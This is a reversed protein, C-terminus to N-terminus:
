PKSASADSVFTYIGKGSGSVTTFYVEGQEDEGFSVVPLQESRIPHNGVVKKAKADYDLAWLKGSVYDAYVYKGQLEPVKSGRYVFGGTISKGIDHNYEFVPDILGQKTAGSNNGFPHLGERISWGYNGGKEIINIEEWLNQGVDAAWLKGTTKDFGMRWVNRLGYAYIEPKAGPTKVFPNDAPVAYAKGGEKKDVDIRLIKGLITELNQGNKHPDGGSGGDGLAIYLFGDPGFAITGGNHNWYPQPIRLLEEETSLDVTQPKSGSAKFRSVVSTHPADKTTYYVFLEGNERFNPHFAMGLFGEENENDKYVVKKSLDFLVHSKQKGQTNELVHVVGQQTPVVIRNSGDGFNTLLIPRFASARGDEGVAEWGSWEVNQFAPVAKVALPTTSIADEAAVAGVGRCLGTGCIALLGLAVGSMLRHCLM